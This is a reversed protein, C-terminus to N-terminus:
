QEPHAAALKQISELVYRSHDDPYTWRVGPLTPCLLSKITDREWGRSSMVQMKRQRVLVDLELILTHTNADM